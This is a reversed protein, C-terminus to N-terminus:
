GFVARSRDDAELGAALSASVGARVLSWLLPDITLDELRVAITRGDRDRMRIRTGSIATRMELVILEDTRVYRKAGGRALWGDGASLNESFVAAIVIGYAIAFIGLSVIWELGRWMMWGALTAFVIGVILATAPRRERPGALASVQTAPLGAPAPSPATV